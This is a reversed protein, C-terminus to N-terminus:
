GSTSPTARPRRRRTGGRDLDHSRPRPWSDSRASTSESCRRRAGSARARGRAAAHRRRRARVRDRRGRGRGARQGAGRRRDRARGGRRRGGTGHFRGRGPRAAVPARTNPAARSSRHADGAASRPDHMDKPRRHRRRGTWGASVPYARESWTPDLRTPWAARCGCSSSSTAPRGPLPSTVVGAVGLGLSAAHAAVDLVADARLAPDRVVGGAGVRDKGVEFQPKVM